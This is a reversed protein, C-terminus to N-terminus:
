PTVFLWVHSLLQAVVVVRSWVSIWNIKPVQVAVVFEKGGGVKGHIICIWERSFKKVFRLTENKLEHLVYGGLFEAYFWAQSWITKSEIASM